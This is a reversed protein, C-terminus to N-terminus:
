EKQFRLQRECVARIESIMDNLDHSQAQRLIRACLVTNTLFNAASWDGQSMLLDLAELLSSTAERIDCFLGEKPSLSIPSTRGNNCTTQTVFTVESATTYIDSTHM